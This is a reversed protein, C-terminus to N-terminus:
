FHSSLRILDGGRNDSLLFQTRLNAPIQRERKNYVVPEGISLLSPRAPQRICVETSMRWDFANQLLNRGIESFLELPRNKRSLLLCCCCGGCCSIIIIIIVKILILMASFALSFNDSLRLFSIAIGGCLRSLTTNKWTVEDPFIGKISDFMQGALNRNQASSKEAHWSLAM